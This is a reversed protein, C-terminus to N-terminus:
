KTTGYWNAWKTQLKTAKQPKIVSSINEVM